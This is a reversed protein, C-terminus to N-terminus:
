RLYVQLWQDKIQRSAMNCHTVDYHREKLLTRGSITPCTISSFGTKQNFNLVPYNLQIPFKSKTFRSYVSFYKSRDLIGILYKHVARQLIIADSQLPFDGYVEQLLIMCQTVDPFRSNVTRANVNLRSFHRIPILTRSIPLFIM